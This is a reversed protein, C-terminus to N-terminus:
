KALGQIEKVLDDGYNKKWYDYVGDVEKKFLARDVENLKMGKEELKVQYEKENKENQINVDVMAEEGAELVIKQVDKPLQDFLKSSAMLYGFVFNINTKSVYKQVEDVKEEYIIDISNEQADIAGQELATYTDAWNMSQVNAGFAKYTEVYVPSEIVRIKLDKLDSPKEIPAKSNTVSRYGRPMLSITKLGATESLAKFEDAEDSDIFSKVHEWDKFLFPLDLIATEPVFGAVPPGSVVAFDLTGFQMQELLERDTGLKRFPYIEIKVKGNTREEVLEKFKVSAFHYNTTEPSQHGLKLTIVDGDSGGSASSSKAESSSKEGGCASLLVLSILLMISLMFKSYKKLM